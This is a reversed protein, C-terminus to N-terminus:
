IKKKRKKDTKKWQTKKIIQSQKETKLKNMKLQKGRLQSKKELKRRM